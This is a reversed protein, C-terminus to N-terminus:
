EFVNKWRWLRFSSVAKNRSTDSCFHSMRKPFKSNALHPPLSSASYFRAPRKAIPTLSSLHFVLASFLPSLPRSHPSSPCFHVSSGRSHLGSQMCTETSSLTALANSCVDWMVDWCTTWCPADWAPLCSSIKIRLPFIWSGIPAWDRYDISVPLEPFDVFSSAALWLRAANTHGQWVDDFRKVTTINKCKWANM